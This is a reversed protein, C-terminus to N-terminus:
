DEGNEDESDSFDLILLLVVVLVIIGGHGDRRRQKSRRPLGHNLKRAHIDM